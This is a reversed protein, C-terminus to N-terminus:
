KQRQRMRDKIFAVATKNHFAFGPPLITHFPEIIGCGSGCVWVWLGLGVYGLGLGLNLGVSGFGFGSGCVLSM